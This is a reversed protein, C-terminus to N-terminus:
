VAVQCAVGLGAALEEVARLMPTPGCAYVQDAEGAELIEKLPETVLGQRGLGGDETCPIYRDAEDTELWPGLFPGGSDRNGEIVSVGRGQFLTRYLFFIPAMGVGGGVLAPRKGAAAFGNGLPGWGPLITGIDSSQSGIQRINQYLLDQFEPRQRKFATTNMNAINNSIVEVNLQQALMGTAAISLSRM